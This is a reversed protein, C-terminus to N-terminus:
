FRNIHLIKEMRRKPVRHIGAEDVHYRTDEGTNEEMVPADAPYGAAVMTDIEHGEPVSLLERIAERDINQIFCTGLGFSVAALLINEVACGVDREYGKKMIATNVLVAIYAAPRTDETPRKEEPLLAGMRTYPFLQRVLNEDDVIIYELPQLNVASPALRAADIMQVLVDRNVARRQFKRISRRTQITKLIDM